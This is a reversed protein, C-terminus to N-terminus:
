QKVTMTVSYVISTARELSRSTLEFRIHILTKELRFRKQEHDVMIVLGWNVCFVGVSLSDNEANLYRRLRQSFYM